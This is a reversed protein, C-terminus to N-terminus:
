PQRDEVILEQARVLQRTISDCESALGILVATDIGPDPSADERHVDGQPSGNNGPSGPAAVPLSCDGPRMTYSSAPQVRVRGAARVAALAATKQNQVYEIDKQYASSIAAQAAGHREINARAATQLEQIKSAAVVAEAVRATTCAARATDEGQQKEHIGYGVMSLIWAVMLGIIVYPNPFM